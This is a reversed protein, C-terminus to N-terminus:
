GESNSEVKALLVELEEIREQYERERKQHRFLRKIMHEGVKVGVICTALIVSVQIGVVVLVYQITDPTLMFAIIREIPIVANIVLVVVAIPTLMITLWASVSMAAIM